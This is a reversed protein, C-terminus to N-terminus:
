DDELNAEARARASLSMLDERSILRDLVRRYDDLASELGDLEKQSSELDLLGGDNLQFMMKIVDCQWRSDDEELFGFFYLNNAVSYLRSARGFKEGVIDSITEQLPPNIIALCHQGRLLDNLALLRTRQRKLIKEWEMVLRHAADPKVAAIVITPDPLTAVLLRRSDAIIDTLLFYIKLLRVINHKRETQKKYARLGQFAQRVLDVIQKLDSFM